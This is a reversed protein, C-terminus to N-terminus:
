RKGNVLFTMSSVPEPAEDHMVTTREPPEFTAIRPSAPVDDIIFTRLFVADRYLAEKRGEWESGLQSLDLKSTEELHEALDILQQKMTSRINM